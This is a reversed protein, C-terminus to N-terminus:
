TSTKSYDETRLEDAEWLLRCAKKVINKYKPPCYIGVGVVQIPVGALVESLAKQSLRGEEDIFYINDEADAHAPDGPLVYTEPYDFHVKGPISANGNKKFKAKLSPEVFDRSCSRKLVEADYPPYSKIPQQFAYAQVLPPYDNSSTLAIIKSALARKEKAQMKHNNKSIDNWHQGLSLVYHDDLKYYTDWDVENGKNPFLKLITVLKKLIEAIVIEFARVDRHYYV